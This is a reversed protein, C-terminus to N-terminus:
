GLQGTRGWGHCVRDCLRLSEASRLCHAHGIGWANLRRPLVVDMLRHPPLIPLIQYYHRAHLTQSFTDDVVTLVVVLIM